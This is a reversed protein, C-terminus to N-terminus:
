MDTSEKTQLNGIALQNGRQAPAGFQHILVRCGLPEGRAHHSSLATLM